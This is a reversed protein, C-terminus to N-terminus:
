VACWSNNAVLYTVIILSALITHYIAVSYMVALYTCLLIPSQHHNVIVYSVFCSELIPSMGFRTEQAKEVIGINGRKLEINIIIYCTFSNLYIPITSFTCSVLEFIPICSM